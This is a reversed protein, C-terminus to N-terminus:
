DGGMSEGYGDDQFAADIRELEPEIIYHLCIAGCIIAAVACVLLLAPIM